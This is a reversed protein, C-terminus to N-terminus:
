VARGRTKGRQACGDISGGGAYKKVKGGRKYTMDSTDTNDYKVRTGPRTVDSLKGSADSRRGRFSGAPTIDADGMADAAAQAAKDKAEGATPDSTSGKRTLGKERNLFDRLSLGSDALEKKSVVRAKPTSSGVFKRARAYTDSSFQGSDSGSALADLAPTAGGDAFKRKKMQM